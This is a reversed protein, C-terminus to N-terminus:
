GGDPKASVRVGWIIKGDYRGGISKVFAKLVCTPVDPHGNNRFYARAANHVVARTEGSKHDITLQDRVWGEVARAIAQVDAVNSM